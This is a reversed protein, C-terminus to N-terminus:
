LLLGHPSRGCRAAACRTRRAPAPPEVVATPSNSSGVEPECGTTPGISWAIPGSTKPSAPAPRAELRRVDGAALTHIPAEPELLLYEGVVQVTSSSEMGGVRRRYAPNAARRSAVERDVPNAEGGGAVACSTSRVSESSTCSPM